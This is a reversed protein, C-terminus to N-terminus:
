DTGELQTDTATLRLTYAGEVSFSATTALSAATGFTVTGPGSVKTWSATVPAGAPLGDDSVSGALSASAPLTITQDAGASVTPAVNTPPAPNVTVVVDDTGDLQTDTATLRLTYAGAVSFSATTALSAANGFTVTGPGSVKTWSATVPAGAPLGDDSVSGALSASAPLTITQDVGASVTPAVNTPPAPVVQITIIPSLTRLIVARFPASVRHYVAGLASENLVVARSFIKDGRAVDGGVGDDNMVGVVSLTRGTADTKLLNVGTGIVSPETITATFLVTVQANVSVSTISAGVSDITAAARLLVVTTALLMAVIAARLAPRTM